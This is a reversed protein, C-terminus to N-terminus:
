RLLFIIIGLSLSSLSASWSLLDSYGEAPHDPLIVLINFTCAIVNIIGHCRSKLPGNTKCLLKVSIEAKPILPNWALNRIMWMM